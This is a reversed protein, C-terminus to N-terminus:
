HQGYGSDFGSEALTAKTASNILDLKMDIYQGLKVAQVMEPKLELAQHLMSKAANFSGQHLYALALNVFLTADYPKLTIANQLADIAERGRSQSLYLGALKKQALSSEPDVEIAALFRQEAEDSKQESWLKDGENILESSGAWLNMSLSLLTIGVGAFLRKYGVNM